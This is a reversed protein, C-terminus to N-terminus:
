WLAISYEAWEILVDLALLFLTIRGLYLVLERHESTGRNPGWISTIFTLLAGGSLLAGVLFAIPMLGSHWYPRAGVVGFIAGVSGHFAVALPVGISGLVQLVRKDRKIAAESVDMKGFTLFRCLSGKWGPENSCTVLDARMAYWLEVVLLVFYFLYLWIMWWMISRFNTHVLLRWFRWVHGLDLWISFLAAVLTV